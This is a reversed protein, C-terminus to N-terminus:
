SLQDVSIQGSHGTRVLGTRILWYSSTMADGSKRWTIASSFNKAKGPLHTWQCLHAWFEKTPRHMQTLLTKLGNNNNFTCVKSIMTQCLKSLTTQLSTPTKSRVFLPRLVWTLLGCCHKMTQEFQLSAILLAKQQKLLYTATVGIRHFPSVNLFLERQVKERKLKWKVDFHLTFYTISNDYRAFEFM